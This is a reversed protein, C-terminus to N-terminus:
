SMNAPEPAEFDAPEAFFFYCRGGFAAHEHLSQKRTFHNEFLNEISRKFNIYTKLENQCDETDAITM